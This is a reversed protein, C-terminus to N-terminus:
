RLHIAAESSGSDLFSQVLVWTVLAKSAWLSKKKAPTAQKDFSKSITRTSFRSALQTEQGPHTHSTIESRGAPTLTSTGAELQCKLASLHDVVRRIGKKTKWVSKEPLFLMFSLPIAAIIGTLSHKSIHLSLRKPGITTLTYLWVVLLYFIFGKLSM